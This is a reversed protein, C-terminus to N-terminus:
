RSLRNETNLVSVKMSQELKVTETSNKLLSSKPSDSEVWGNLVSARPKQQLMRLMCNLWRLRFCNIILLHKYIPLFFVEKVYSLGAEKMRAANYILLRAAEIETAVDAIQHQM